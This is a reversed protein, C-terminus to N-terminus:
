TMHQLVIYVGNQKISLLLFWFRGEVLNQLEDIWKVMFMLVLVAV